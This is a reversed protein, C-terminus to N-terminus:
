VVSEHRQHDPASRGVDAAVDGRLRAVAAPVTALVADVDSETTTWGLSLRLAGGALDPGIGMAALVHSPESAGSACSSGWSAAIGAEDLLFLLAERDVGPVCALVTGPTRRSPDAPSALLLDPIASTLGVVLRERLAEM